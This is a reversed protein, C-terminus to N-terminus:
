FMKINKEMNENINTQKFLEAEVDAYKDIIIENLQKM